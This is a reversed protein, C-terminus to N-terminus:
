IIGKARAIWESIEMEVDCARGISRVSSVAGKPLWVEHEGDFVLYAKPTEHKIEGCFTVTKM